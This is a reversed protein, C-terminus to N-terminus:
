NYAVLEHRGQSMDGNKDETRGESVLNGIRSEKQERETGRKTQRPGNVNETRLQDAFVVLGNIKQTENVEVYPEFEGRRSSEALLSYFM